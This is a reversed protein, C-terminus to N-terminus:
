YLSLSVRCSGGRVYRTHAEVYGDCKEEKGEVDRWICKKERNIHTCRFVSELLYSAETFLVGNM